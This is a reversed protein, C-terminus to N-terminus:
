ADTGTKIYYRAYEKRYYAAYYYPHGDIDVKNLIAGVFRARAHELQDLAARANPRSTMDSGVVFIVGGAANSLITADTVAMVPPSDIIVWDFAEGMSKLGDRFRASALLEAPNPPIRGAAM